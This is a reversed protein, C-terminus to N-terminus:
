AQVCAQLVVDIHEGDNVVTDADRVANSNPGTLATRSNNQYATRM